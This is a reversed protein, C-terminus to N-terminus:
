PLMRKVIGDIRQLQNKGKDSMNRYDGPSHYSAERGPAATAFTEDLGIALRLSEGLEGRLSPTGF